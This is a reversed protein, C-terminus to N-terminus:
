EKFSIESFSIKFETGLSRDIALQGELQNILVNVLKLGLSKVTNLEFNIPFGNGNDGVTLIFHNNAESQMVIYIKGTESNSFAHKLANSVLETIILGCTIATDINLTLEDIDLELTINNANGAYVQFLYSSLSEVYDYFSIRACDKSQYLKEHVLAMSRVRNCSERFVEMTAREEIHQSQLDLLSCIVQLNNKVRHHIEKFLVEKERLSAKIQTEALKRDGIDLSIGIMRVPKGTEDYFVRSKSEIWRIQGDPLVVRFEVDCEEGTEMSRQEVQRVRDRDEPHLSALFAECNRDDTDPTWGYMRELNPSRMVVGTQLDWDWFGIRAADMALRLQEESQRLQEEAQKRETIDIGVSVAMTGQNYKQAAILYNRTSDNARAEIVQCDTQASSALFQEMLQVFDPSNELFGLEKGVFDDPSLNFREALHRNVGLYRGDSSIWSVFGPVADLVARLQEKAQQLEAEVAKLATIDTVIAFSGELTGDPELIPMSSVLTLLRQGDNRRFQLEYSGGEGRRRERRQERVIQRNAEDLFELVNHGILESQSYGLMESFKENVYSLLSEGNTIIVGESMGEILMRYRQESERLAEEALRRETIDTGVGLLLRAQGDPSVLPKKIVQFYRVAGTPTTIPTEPFIQPQFADLVARDESLFQEVEAREPHFDAHTKGILDEVTLGYFDAYAQNLLLFKGESNKVFFPNPNSDIVTQLFTKQANLAEQTQQREAIEQKLLTNARALEATREAVRKELEDNAKQLDLQAQKQASINQITGIAYQLLGDADCVASVSLNVWILCGDKRFGRIDSSFHSCLGAILEQFLALTQSREDPHTLQIFSRNQLEEESYGFLEQFAQNTQIFEGQKNALVMGIPGLEFLTRFREESERLAEETQKNKTIDRCIGLLSEVSGDAAFEPVVRSQYYKLGNPTEITFDIEDEQGTQFIKRFPQEWLTLVAQPRDLEHITKGFFEQPPQGTVREIAPNVYLHRLERDL